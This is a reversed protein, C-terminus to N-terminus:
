VILFLPVFILTFVTGNPHQDNFVKVANAVSRVGLSILQTGEQYEYRRPQVYEEANMVYSAGVQFRDDVKKKERMRKQRRQMQNQIREQQIKMISNVGSGQPKNPIRIEEFRKGGFKKM